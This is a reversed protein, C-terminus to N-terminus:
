DMPSLRVPVTDDGLLLARLADAWGYKERMLADVRERAEPDEFIETAYRRSEGDRELEVSPQDRLWALWRRDPRAARLWVAGEDDAAWLTVYRDSNEVDSVRLVAVDATAQRGVQWAAWALAIGVLVCLTGRSV